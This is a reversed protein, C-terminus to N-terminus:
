RVRVEEGLGSYVGKVYDDVRVVRIDWEDRVDIDSCCKRIIIIQFATIIEIACRSVCMCENRIWYGLIDVM